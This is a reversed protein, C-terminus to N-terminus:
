GRGRLALLALVVQLVLILAAVIGSSFRFNGLERQVSDVEESVQAIDGKLGSTEVYLGRVEERMEKNHEHAAQGAEQQQRLEARLETLSRQLASVDERLAGVSAAMAKDSDLLTSLQQATEVQAARKPDPKPDAAQAERGAVCLLIAAAVM